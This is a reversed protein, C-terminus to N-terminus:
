LVSSLLAATLSVVFGFAATPFIGAANNNLPESTTGNGGAQGLDDAPIDTDNNASGGDAGGDPYDTAEPAGPYDTAEPPGEGNIVGYSPTETPIVESSCPTTFVEHVSSETCPPTPTMTIVAEVSSETCPPTTVVDEVASTTTEPHITNEPCPTSIVDEVASTTIEPHVISETHSPNTQTRKRCKRVKSCKKPPTGYGGYNALGGDQPIAEAAMSALLVTALLAYKATHSNTSQSSSILRM